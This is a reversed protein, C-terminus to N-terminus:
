STLAKMMFLKSQPDRVVEGKKMLDAVACLAQTKTLGTIAILDRESLAAGALLAKKIKALYEPRPPLSNFTKLSNIMQVTLFKPLGWSM